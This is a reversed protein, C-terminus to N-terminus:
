EPANVTEGDYVPWYTEMAVVSFYNDYVNLLTLVKYIPSVLSLADFHSHSCSVIAHSYPIHYAQFQGCDCWRDPISIRYQQRPLRQNHDIIEKVSFTHGHRDFETVRHTNGKASEQQVYNMCVDNYVQQTQLVSNWRKGRTAFLIAMRFYTASVLAMVPLNRIGKFVDNMSEVLNTPMHGWRAWDDYSRTWRARDISYIWRGADPNSLEIERRYYQFGPQNLAYGANVLHNTLFKDKIKRMFNQTIHRIDYVRTSPPDHWGNAPNNYASGISAHMDLILCIDPQPAVKARLNKLFFSWATATEEEVLAFAIPFINNNGDQAVAMLLTGKYKGYLWTGDIQIIPKFFWIRHHM